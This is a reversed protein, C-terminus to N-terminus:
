SGQSELTALGRGIGASHVGTRNQSRLCARGGKWGRPVQMKLTSVMCFVPVCFLLHVNEQDAAFVIEVVSISM